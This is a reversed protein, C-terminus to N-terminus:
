RAIPKGRTCAQHVKEALEDSHPSIHFSDYSREEQDDSRAGGRGRLRGIRSPLARCHQLPRAQRLQRTLPLRRWHADGTM